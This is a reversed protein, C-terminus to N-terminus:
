HAKIFSRGWDICAALEIEGKKQADTVRALLKARTTPSGNEENQSFPLVDGFQVLLQEMVEWRSWWRTASFSAMPRGTQERWMLRTKPSHAFLSIWATVVESLNPTCFRDGVHDLTHSFCGIDIINPYVVKVTRLAATNVAARDRMAALLLDPAISYTISLISILERALQEGNASKALIQLRVLRQVLCWNDSVFRVVIALAEGLRTTGDCIMVQEQKQFFPILDSMNWRDGLCFANEEFIERFTKLKSLPVAARLFSTVVKILAFYQSNSLLLKM